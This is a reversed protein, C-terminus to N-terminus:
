KDPIFVAGGQAGGPQPWKKQKSPPEKDKDNLAKLFGNSMIVTTEKQLYLSFVYCFLILFLFM